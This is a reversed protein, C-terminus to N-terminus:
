FFFFFTFYFKFHFCFFLLIFVFFLNVKDIKLFRKEFPHKKPKEIPPNFGGQSTDYTNIEHVSDYRENLPIEKGSLIDSSVRSVSPHYHSQLVHLEWLNTSFPFSHDPDEVLPLFTGSGTTEENLMQQLRPENQIM